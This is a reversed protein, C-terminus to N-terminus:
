SSFKPQRGVTTKSKSNNSIPMKSDNNSMLQQNVADMMGDTKEQYYKNRAEAQGKAIKALAVDGRVVCNEYRGKDIVLSTHLMEPVEEPRVFEYGQQTKRGVNKYDDEGKLSIRIWRLALDQSKFRDAVSDPIDLLNPEEYTYEKSQEERTEVNRSTKM